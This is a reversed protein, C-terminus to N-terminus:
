ETMRDQGLPTKQRKQSSSDSGVRLESDGDCIIVPIAKATIGMVANQFNRIFGNSGGGGRPRSIVGREVMTVMM